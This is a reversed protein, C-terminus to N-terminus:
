YPVDDPSDKRKPDILKNISGPVIGGEKVPIQNFPKFFAWVSLHNEAQFYGFVQVFAGM